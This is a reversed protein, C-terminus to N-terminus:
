TVALRWLSRGYTAAMLTRDKEHYVLDVVMTHPLNGSLNAWTAGADRSIFVGADTAVYLTDPAARSIAIAHHPVDPLQGRDIDSWTLGGDNSRFVHSHGYNAVTAYVRNADIPSTELRTVTHGPLVSSSINASWTKGRDTSRFIGGNETSVYIRQSDTIPIEICSITSGDLVPSIDKWDDGSNLSRWVRHSGTYVVRSDGPDLVIFAMWVANRESDSCNPSVDKYGGGELRFVHLNYYSAFVKGANTPDYVMWGGDGGLIEYYDDDQATITVVTGNDQTGGGFSRGDSPAIDADYFMTAALGNSRNDWTLGADDSVDLGGDNADYVRGPAATPMVLCHHDAHAYHADDRPLNWQTVKTWTAGGDDTRHLDVGGCLVLDADRPDVVITNGYSLQTENQFHATSVDRWTDGGDDSRFVGLIKDARRSLRDAALAYITDPSSMSVALSTRGMREPAPLGQTLQSWTNGGDTSRYIGSRTGQETVTIFVVGQRAPHFRIAHCWYNLSAALMQRSWTAGADTSIYAGGIDTDSNSVERHGVGGLVIRNSDFPDVALAGIRRPLMTTESAAHLHWSTGGDITRYLGVGGYSDLSLNAEGTGCYLLNPDNPDIALAGINLVDESHWQPAWTRGADGSFWVGGGASGAWLRDPQVPDCALCTVRGGINSPGIPQWQAQAAADAPTALARRRGDVLAQVPAERVPWAARAQFWVSRVKHSNLRPGPAGKPRQKRPGPELKNQPELEGSAATENPAAKHQTPHSVASEPVPAIAREAAKATRKRKKSAM